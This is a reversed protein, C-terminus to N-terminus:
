PYVYYEAGLIDRLKRFKEFLSQFRSSAHARDYSVIRIYAFLAHLRDPHVAVFCKHIDCVAAVVEACVADNRIGSSTLLATHETIDAAFYFIKCSVTHYLYHQQTLVDIGVPISFAM